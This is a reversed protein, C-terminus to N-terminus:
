KQRLSLFGWSRLTTPVILNISVGFTRDPISCTVKLSAACYSFWSCWRLLYYHNYTQRIIINIM